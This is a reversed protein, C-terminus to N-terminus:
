GMPRWRVGLYIVARHTVPVSGWGWGLDPTCNPFLGTTQAPCGMTSGWVAVRQSYQWGDAQPHLAAWMPLAPPWLSHELLEVIVVSPQHALGRCSWCCWHRACVPRSPSCVMAWLKLLVEWFGSFYLLVLFSTSQDSLLLSPLIDSISCFEGGAGAAWWFEGGLTWGTIEWWLGAGTNM